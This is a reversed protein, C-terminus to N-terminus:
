AAVLLAGAAAFTLALVTFVDKRGAGSVTVIPPRVTTASASPYIGGTVTISPAVTPFVTM